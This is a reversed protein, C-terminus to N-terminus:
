NEVKLTNQSSYLISPQTPTSPPPPMPLIELKPSHPQAQIESSETIESIDLHSNNKWADTSEANEDSPIPQMFVNETKISGGM